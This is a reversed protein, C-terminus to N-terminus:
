EVREFFSDELVLCGGLWGSTSCALPHSGAVVKKSGLPSLCVFLFCLFWGGAERTWAFTAWGGASEGVVHIRELNPFRVLQGRVTGPGMAELFLWHHTSSKAVSLQALLVHHM